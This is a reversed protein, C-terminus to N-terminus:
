KKIKKCVIDCMDVLSKDTIRYLVNLGEKRKGILGANLLVSLHRSVNPQSLNTFGVIETVNREGSQLTSIIKLRSAEGLTRFLIAVSELDEESLNKLTTKPM